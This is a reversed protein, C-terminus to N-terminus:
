HNCMQKVGIGQIANWNDVKHGSKQILIRSETCLAVVARSLFM